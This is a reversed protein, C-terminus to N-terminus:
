GGNVPEDQGPLIDRMAQPTTPTGSIVGAAHGEGYSASATSELLQTLRGDIAQGVAVIKGDVVAIKETAKNAAQVANATKTANRVSVIFAGIAALLTALATLIGPLNEILHDLM